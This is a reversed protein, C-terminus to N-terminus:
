CSRGLGCRSRSVVNIGPYVDRGAGTVGNDPGIVEDLVAGCVALVFPVVPM